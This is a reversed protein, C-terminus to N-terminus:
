AVAKRARRIAARDREDLGSWIGKRSTDALADDYCEQRVPCRACVAVAPDPSEGREPFWTVGSHEPRRCAASRYWAPRAAAVAALLDAAAGLAEEPEVGGILWALALPREPAM